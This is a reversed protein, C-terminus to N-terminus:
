KGCIAKPPPHCVVALGKPAAGEVFELVGELAGVRSPIAVKRVRAAEPRSVSM